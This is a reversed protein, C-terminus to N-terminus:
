RYRKDCKSYQCAFRTSASADLGVRSKDQAPIIDRVSIGFCAGAAIAGALIAALGAFSEFM